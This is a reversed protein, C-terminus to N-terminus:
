LIDVNGEGYYYEILKFPLKFHKNVYNNLLTITMKFGFIVKLNKKRAGSRM